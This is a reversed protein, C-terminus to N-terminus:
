LMACVEFPLMNMVVEINTRYRYERNSVLGMFHLGTFMAQHSYIFQECFCSHPFPSQPRATEKRPTCLDLNEQCHSGTKMILAAIMFGAQLWSM